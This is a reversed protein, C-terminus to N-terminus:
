NIAILPREEWKQWPTRKGDSQPTGLKVAAERPSIRVEREMKPADQATSGPQQELPGKWLPRGVRAGRSGRHGPVQTLAKNEFVDVGSDVSGRNEDHQVPGPKATNGWSIFWARPQFLCSARARELLSQESLVQGGGEVKSAAAELRSLTSPVSSSELLGCFTSHEAKVSHGGGSSEQNLSSGHLSNGKEREGPRLLLSRSGGRASCYSLDRPLSATKNARSHSVELVVPSELPVPLVKPSAGSRVSSSLRDQQVGAFSRSPKELALASSGPTGTSGDMRRVGSMLSQEYEARWRGLPTMKSAAPDLFRSCDQSHGQDYHALSLSCSGQSNRTLTASNCTALHSEGHSRCGDGDVFTAQTLHSHAVTPTRLITSLNSTSTTQDKYAPPRAASLKERKRKLRIGRCYYLVALIVGILLLIMTVMIVLLLIFHDQPAM